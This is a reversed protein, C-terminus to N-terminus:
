NHQSNTQEFRADFEDFCAEIRSVCAAQWSEYVVGADIHYMEGQLITWTTFFAAKEMQKGPATERPSVNVNATPHINPCNDALVICLM